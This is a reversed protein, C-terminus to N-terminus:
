SLVTVESHVVQLSINKIDILTLMEEFIQSTHVKGSDYFQEIDISNLVADLKQVGQAQLYAVM